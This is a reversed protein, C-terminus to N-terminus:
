RLEDEHFMITFVIKICSPIQSKSFNSTLPDSDSNLALDAKKSIELGTSVLLIFHSRGLHNQKKNAVDELTCNLFLYIKFKLLLGL